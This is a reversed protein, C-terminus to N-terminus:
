GPQFGSFTAFEDIAARKSRFRNVPDSRDAHGLAMGCYILENGPLGFHSHMSNRVMAWAEQMCTSLGEAHALLAVSQMFMGLHAWQSHGMSRDIIFFLGVPAGWFDYNRAVIRLRAARDDHAVGLLAYREAAVQLRRSRYPEGIKRDFVPFDGEEGEPNEALRKRALHTVAEKATGAVAIVRWPQINSGSPAWRATDLLARVTAEDVPDATFARVSVRNKLAEAVSLPKRQDTMM